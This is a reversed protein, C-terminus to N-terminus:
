GARFDPRDFHHEAGLLSEITNLLEEEEPRNFHGPYYPPLAELDEASLAPAHVEEAEEAIELFGIPIPTLTTRADTEPRYLAYRVKEAEPDFILDEITGAIKGEADVLPWGRIDDERSAVNVDEAESLRRLSSIPEDGPDDRIIPHDGAYLGRHDYAPHAYYREGRFLRGHAALVRRQYEGDAKEREPVYEPIRELDEKTAARLELEGGGNEAELRTHGIPVLVHRDSDVIALDIYRILGSVADALSGHITGVHRGNMDFAEIGALDPVPRLAFPDEASPGYLPAATAM